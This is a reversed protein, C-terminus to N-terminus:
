EWWPANLADDALMSFSLEREFVQSHMLEIWRAVVVVAIGAALALAATADTPAAAFLALAAAFFALAILLARRSEPYREIVGMVLHAARVVLYVLLIAIVIVAVVLQGVARDGNNM